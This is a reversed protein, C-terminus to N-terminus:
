MESSLFSMTKDNARIMCVVDLFVCSDCTCLQIFKQLNFVDVGPDLFLEKHASLGRTDGGETVGWTFVVNQIGLMTQKLIEYLHLKNNDNNRTHTKTQHYKTNM